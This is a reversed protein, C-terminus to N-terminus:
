WLRAGVVVTLALSVFLVIVSSRRAPELDVGLDMDLLLYRIGACFHHLYAWVMALLGLKALPSGFWGRVIDFDQATGHSAEAVLLVLPIGMLFLLAGSIRHLISVIAPLPQRIEVLNLYVPRAKVM